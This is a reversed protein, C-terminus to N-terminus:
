VCCLHLNLEVQSFNCSLLQYYLPQKCLTGARGGLQSGSPANFTLYVWRRRTARNVRVKGDKDRDLQTMLEPVMSEEFGQMSQVLKTLESYGIYGSKLPDLADFQSRLLDLDAYFSARKASRSM